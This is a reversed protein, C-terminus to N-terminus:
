RLRHDDVEVRDELTEKLSEIFETWESETMTLTGAYTLHDSHGALLNVTVATENQKLRAPYRGLITFRYRHDKTM